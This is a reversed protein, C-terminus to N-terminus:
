AAEGGGNTARLHPRSQGSPHGGAAGTADIRASALKIGLTLDVTRVELRPYADEILQALREGMARLYADEAPTLKFAFQMWCESRAVNVVPDSSAEINSSVGGPNWGTFTLCATLSAAREAAEGLSWLKSAV